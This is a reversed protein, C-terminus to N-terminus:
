IMLILKQTDMVKQMRTQRTTPVARKFQMRLSTTMTGTM